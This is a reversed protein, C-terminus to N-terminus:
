RRKQVNKKDRQTKDPLKARAARVRAKVSAMCAAPGAWRVLLLLSPLRAPEMSFSFLLSSDDRISDANKVTGRYM